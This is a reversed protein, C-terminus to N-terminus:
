TMGVSFVKPKLSKNWAQCPAFLHEPAFWKESWHSERDLQVEVFFGLSPEYTCSEVFGKLENSECAVRVRTGKLIESEALVLASCEGIEELNGPVARQQGSRYPCAISVLESCLDRPRLASDEM